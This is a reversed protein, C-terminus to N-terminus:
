HGKILKRYYVSLKCERLSFSLSLDRGGHSSIRSYPSSQKPLLHCPKNRDKFCLRFCTQQRQQQQLRGLRSVQKSSTPPAARGAGLEDPTPSARPPCHTATGGVVAGGVTVAATPPSLEMVRTPLRGRRRSFAFFRCKKGSSVHSTTESYFDLKGQIQNKFATLLERTSGMSFQKVHSKLVLTAQLRQIM